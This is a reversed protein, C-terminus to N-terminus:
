AESSFHSIRYSPCCIYLILRFCRTSSCCCCLMSCTLFVYSNLSLAGLLCVPVIQMFLYRCNQIIVWLISYVYSDMSTFMLSQIHLILSSSTVLGGGQREFWILLLSYPFHFIPILVQSCDNRNPLIWQHIGFNVHSVSSCSVQM